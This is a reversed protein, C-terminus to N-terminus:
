IIIKSSDDERMVIITDVEIMKNITTAGSIEETVEETITVETTGEITTGAEITITIPNTTDKFRITALGM